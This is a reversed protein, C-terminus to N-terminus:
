KMKRDFGKLLSLLRLHPAANQHTMDPATSNAETGSALSIDTICNFIFASCAHM